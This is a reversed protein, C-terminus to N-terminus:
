AAQRAGCSGGGDGAESELITGAEPVWSPRLSHSSAYKAAKAEIPARTGRGGGGGRRGADGTEAGDALLLLLTPLAAALRSSTSM